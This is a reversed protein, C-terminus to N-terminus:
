ALWQRLLHGVGAVLAAAGLGTVGTQRWRNPALAWHLVLMALAGALLANPSRTLWLPWAVALVGAVWAAAAYGAQQAVATFTPHALGLPVMDVVAAAGDPDALLRTARQLPDPHTPDAASVLGILGLLSESPLHAAHAAAQARRRQADRAAVFATVALMVVAGCGALLWALMAWGDPSLGAAWAFALLALTVNASHQAIPARPASPLRYPTLGQLGLPALPMLLGVWGTRRVLRSLLRYPWLVPGDVHRAALELHWWLRPSDPAIDALALHLARCAAQPLYWRKM